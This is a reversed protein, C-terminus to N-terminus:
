FTTLWGCGGIQRPLAAGPVSLYISFPLIFVPFNISFERYADARHKKKQRTLIKSRKITYDKFSDKTEKAETLCVSRKIPEMEGCACKERIKEGCNSCFNGFQYQSKCKPCAM